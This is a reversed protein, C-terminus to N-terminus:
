YVTLINGDWILRGYNIPIANVTVNGAMSHGDTQLVVEDEGPTVEYPGDFLPLGGGGMVTISGSVSGIQAVAGSIQQVASVRGTIKGDVPSIM